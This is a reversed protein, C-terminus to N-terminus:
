SPYPEYLYLKVTLSIRLRGPKPHKREVSFANQVWAEEMPRAVTNPLADAYIRCSCSAVHQM